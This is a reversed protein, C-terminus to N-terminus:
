APHDGPVISQDERGAATRAINRGRRAAIPAYAERVEAPGRHKSVAEVAAWRVLKSGKSIRGRHTKTDSEYLRPTLSAWSCLKDARPSARSIAGPCLMVM